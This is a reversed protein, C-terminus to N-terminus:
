PTTKNPASGKKLKKELEAFLDKQKKAQEARFLEVKQTMDKKSSQFKKVADELSDAKKDRSIEEIKLHNKLFLRTGFAGEVI